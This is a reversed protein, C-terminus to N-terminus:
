VARKLDVIWEWGKVVTYMGLKLRAEEAVLCARRKM